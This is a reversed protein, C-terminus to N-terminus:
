SLAQAMLYAKWEMDEVSLLPPLGPRIHHLRYRRETLIKWAVRAAQPGHLELLLLPRAEELLRIMGPLALVEGGEIDMKVLQPPPNGREYVFEDLSLGEVVITKQYREPRGTSGDVKGMGGSAHVLFRAPGAKQTVAGAVVLVREELRNLELNSRLRQLNEPLAEFAYVRGQLGVQRAMLISFYGINAGVDYAVMGPQVLQLVLSQLAPEYTGLWYDKESQLDLLLTCGALAGAAVRVQVLGRPAARNLARRIFNALPKIRYLTQVWPSPLQRAAWAAMALLFSPMSLLLIELPLPLIFSRKLNGNQAVM